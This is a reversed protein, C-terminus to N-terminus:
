QLVSFGYKRYIAKAQKSQLFNYYQKAETSQRVMAIPYVIPDHSALPFTGVVAVNRAIKADTAYVIGLQCEGRNVFNLAARVDETEVLKPRVAQWWDLHTLAQKAYRGVPVSSTNGTCLKGSLVTQIPFSSSMTITKAPLKNKPTILVLRNGLLNKQSQTVIKDKSALHNMWKVDASIFIDAPANNEIQKALTGSSAYSSKARTKHQKTYLQNIEDIANTMSAAAYVTVDAHVLGAISASLLLILSPLQKM